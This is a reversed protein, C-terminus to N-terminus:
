QGAKLPVSHKEMATTGAGYTRFITSPRNLFCFCFARNWGRGGVGKENEGDM